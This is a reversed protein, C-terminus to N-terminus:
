NVPQLPAQVPVFVHVMVRFLSVETDAFKLVATAGVAVNVTERAPVPDPETPLLGDPILQPVAQLEDNLTPVWTVNVAVGAAPEVKAPQDPPHLPVDAEQTTVSLLM